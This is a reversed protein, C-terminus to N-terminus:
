RSLGKPMGPAVVAQFFLCRELADGALCLSAGIFLFAVGLPSLGTPLCTLGAAVFALGAVSCTWRSTLSTRLPGLLLQASPALPNQDAERTKLVSGEAALKGITAIVALTFLVLGWATPNESISGIALGAPLGSTLATLLFIPANAQRKWFARPTDFYVMFSAFVCLLGMGVTSAGLGLRVAGGLLDPAFALCLTYLVAIKAWVGFGVAERSLWSTRLGLFARFAMTPRGLHMMSAGIGVLGTILATIALPMVRNSGTIDLAWALGFLGVSVQTLTLMVILPAHAHEPKPTGNQTRSTTSLDRTTKFVTTPKTISSDPAATAAPLLPSRSLVEAEQTDILRISIAKTPCAQVCAPAQGDELRDICMDCKRVIGKTPSYKPVDYPCKFQCYQCGFCQDDLHRVIGSIPDKDYAQTPCGQLCGPELCHHCATTVHQNAFGTETEGVLNGVDRWSENDELGNLSHCASVCAKCGSCADLDVQFAYQQGPGPPSAPLLDKYYKAQTPETYQDTSGTNQNKDHHKSFRDVASLSAQEALFQDILTPEDTPNPHPLIV